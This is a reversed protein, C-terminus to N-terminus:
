SPVTSKPVLHDPGREMDSLFKRLVALREARKELLKWRHTLNTLQADRDAILRARLSAIALVGPVTKEYSPQGFKYIAASALVAWGVPGVAVAIVSSMGTYVAFPLTLGLAGSVAGLATSAGAYLGFGSLNALLMTGSATLFVAPSVGQAKAIEVVLAEREQPSAKALVIELAARTAIRELEVQSDRPLPEKAGLRSAVDAAVEEYSVPRGLRVATATSHSGAKRLEYVIESPRTQPSIRVITALNAQEEQSAHQLAVDPPMHEYTLQLLVQQMRSLQEFESRWQQTRREYEQRVDAASVM